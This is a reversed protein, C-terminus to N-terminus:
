VASSVRERCSARGIEVAEPRHSFLWAAADASSLSPDALQCDKVLGIFRQLIQVPHDAIQRGVVEFVVERIAEQCDAQDCIAFDRGIDTLRQPMSRLLWACFSHITRVTVEEAPEGAIQAIREVMEKCARNTFTLCLIEAPEAAGSVLLNAVRHALTNTKGTGAGALLLLHDSLNEVALQQQKNLAITTPM